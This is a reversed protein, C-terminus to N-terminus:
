SSCSLMSCGPKNRAWEPRKAAYKEKGPQQKYPNRLMKQLERLPEYDGKEAAEIVQQGLYNRFVYLPNVENMAERRVLLQTEDVTAAVRKSYAMLWQILGHDDDFEKPEYLAEKIHSRCQLATASTQLTALSRFFITMDVENLQLAQELAAILAADQKADTQTLGLKQLMMSQYQETYKQPYANLVEELPSVYALLPAIANGLQLLNWQSVAGQAGFRYRKHAADTTNPTWQLDYDDVWGYPGYDITLGHISMNDTNLVGHTFGVRMWGVVVECTLAAVEKFWAVYAEENPEGLEPFYTEITFDLLTRLTALDGRAAFLQFNGFRLFSPAVRSVVAGPEFAQNGDYFMDRLVQDGTLVLSLARTTPVGLHQMAESCVYERVSSRLVALGDASRSYPTLGAGKLQLMAADGNQTAVEGLNIARGDGLQGAWNGFQHGGYCLAHPVSGPLLESGSLYAAAQKEEWDAIPLQLEDALDQVYDVVVPSAAKKPAVRSYVAEYVQRPKISEDLDGPLSSVFQNDLQM